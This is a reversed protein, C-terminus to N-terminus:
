PIQAHRVWWPAAFGLTAGVATSAAIAVWSWQMYAGMLCGGIAGFAMQWLAPVRFAKPELDPAAIAGFTAGSLGLLASGQWTFGRGISGILAFIVAGGLAM